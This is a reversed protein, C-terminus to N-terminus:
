EVASFEGLGFHCAYGLSFPAEIEDSFELKLGFGPRVPDDKRNRRFESWRITRSRAVHLEPVPLVTRPEPLGHNRCERAIEDRIWDEFLHRRPKFHRTPVFPTASTVARTKKRPAGWQVPMLRIDPRGQRQWISDLQDLAQLESADFPSHCHVLLHDLRGDGNLDSPLYFAHRHPERMPEGSPTKGSFRPSVLQDSGAIKKHIGMLKSRVREAIELTETLRPLVKSDFAYLVSRVQPPHHEPQVTAAPDFCNSPRLYNVYKMAPPCNWGFKTIVETGTAIADIWTLQKMTRGITLNVTTFQQKPVPAAVPVVDMDTATSEGSDPACNWQVGSIGRLLRAQVWSESRGLYNMLSLLEDLDDIVPPEPTIDPWGMLVTARPSLAVFGDFILTKSQTNKENKSLFSRTHSVAAQPLLYLPDHASLTSLVKEIRPHGWQPRKRKCADYLARLLRYPSPPWEAIGENVHRGWPTGHYRGAPFALEIVLM